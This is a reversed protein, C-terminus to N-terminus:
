PDARCAQIGFRWRAVFMQAGGVEEIDFVVRVQGKGAPPDLRDIWRVAAVPDRTQQGNSVHGTIDTQIRLISRLSSHLLSLYDVELGPQVAAVKAEDPAPRDLLDGVVHLDRKM